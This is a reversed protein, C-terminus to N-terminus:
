FNMTHTHAVFFNAANKLCAAHNKKLYLIDNIQYNYGKQELLVRKKM